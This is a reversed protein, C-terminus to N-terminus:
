RAQSRPVIPPARGTAPLQGMGVRSGRGGVSWPAQGSRSSSIPRSPPRSLHQLFTSLQIFTGNVTTMAGVGPLGVAGPGAEAPRPDRRLRGRRRGRGRVRHDGRHPPGVVGVPAEGAAARPRGGAHRLLQRLVLRAPRGPDLPLHARRLLRQRDDHRLAVPIIYYTGQDEFVWVDRTGPADCRYPGDGYRLVIGQDRAEMRFRASPRGDAYHPNDGAPIGRTEAAVSVCGLLLAPVWPRGM